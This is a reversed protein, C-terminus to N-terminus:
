PWGDTSFVSVNSAFGAQSPRLLRAVSGGGLVITWFKPKLELVLAAPGASEKVDGDAGGLGPRGTPRAEHRGSNANQM